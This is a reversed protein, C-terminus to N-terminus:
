LGLLLLRIAEVLDSCIFLFDFALKPCHRDPMSKMAVFYWEIGPLAGKKSLIKLELLSVDYLLFYLGFQMDVM